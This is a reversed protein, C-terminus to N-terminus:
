GWDVGGCIEGQEEAAEDKGHKPNTEEIERMNRHIVGRDGEETKKRKRRGGEGRENTDVIEKRWRTERDGEETEKRQLM